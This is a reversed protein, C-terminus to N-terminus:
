VGLYRTKLDSNGLLEKSDGHWVVLGKDLIYHHDSLGALASINKDVVLISQGSNKL